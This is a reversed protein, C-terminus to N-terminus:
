AIQPNLIEPELRRTKRLQWFYYFLYPIHLIMNGLGWYYLLQSNGVWNSANMYREFLVGVGTARLLIHTAM